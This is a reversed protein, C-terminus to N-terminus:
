PNGQNKKKKVDEWSKEAIWERLHTLGLALFFFDKETPNKIYAKYVDQLIRYLDEPKNLDFLNLDPMTVGLHIKRQFAEV